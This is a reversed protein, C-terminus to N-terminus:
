DCVTRSVSMRVPSKRGVWSQALRDTQYLRLGAPVVLSECLTDANRPAEFIGAMIAFSVSFISLHSTFVNLLGASSKTERAPRQLPPNASFTRGAGPPSTKGSADWKSSPVTM